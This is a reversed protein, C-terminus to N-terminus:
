KISLTFEQDINELIKKWNTDKTNKIPDKSSYFNAKLLNIIIYRDAATHILLFFFANGGALM